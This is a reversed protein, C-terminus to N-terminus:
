LSVPLSARDERGDHKVTLVLVWEGQMHFRLGEVRYRGPEAMAQVQPASPLGHNHAPMGGVLTLEAGVLPEGNATQLQLTWAHMVNLPLPLADPLFQVRFTGEQSQVTDLEAPAARVQEVHGATLLVLLLAPTSWRRGWRVLTGRSWWYALQALVVVGLLLPALGWSTGGVEFPFVALYEEQMTPHRATVIGIYDGEAAFVHRATLVDPAAGPGQHFVTLADLEAATPLDDLRTFRGLGTPNSLIRFELPATGLSEHLYEMVFLTEGSAPLDECFERHGSRGPQYIKFHASYFGIRIVCIDDGATVSGHAALQGPVLLLLSLLCTWVKCM